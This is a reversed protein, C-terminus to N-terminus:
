KGGEKWWVTPKKQGTPRENNNSYKWCTKHANFNSRDGPKATSTMDSYEFLKSLSMYKNNIVCQFKTNQFIM